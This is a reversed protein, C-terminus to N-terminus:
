CLACIVCEPEDSDIIEEVSMNERQRKNVVSNQFLGPLCFGRTPRWRPRQAFIRAQQLRKVLAVRTGNASLNLRSCIAWIDKVYLSNLELDASILALFWGSSWFQCNLRGVSSDSCFSDSLAPYLTCKLPFYSIERMVFRFNNCLNWIARALFLQEFSSLCTFFVSTMIALHIIIPYDLYAVFIAQSFLQPNAINLLNVNM